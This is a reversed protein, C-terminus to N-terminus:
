IKRKSENILVSANLVEMRGASDNHIVLTFWNQRRNMLGKMGDHRQTKMQDPDYSRAPYSYTDGEPLVVDVVLPSSSKGAVYVVEPSKIQLTDFGQSGCDVLALIPLREDDEGELLRLGTTDIGYEDGFIRATSNFYWNSYRSTAGNSLNMVVTSADGDYRVRVTTFDEAVEKNYAASSDLSCVLHILGDRVRVWTSGTAARPPIFNRDQQPLKVSGDARGIVFGNDGMWGVADENPHRFGTGKIGGYPLVERPSATKIDTGAYFYTRDAVVFVGDQIPLMLTVPAGVDIYNEEAFTQGFDHVKSYSIIQGKASLLRGNFFAIIDGAPLASLFERDGLLRGTPADAISVSGTAAAVTSYRQLVSGNTETCYITFYTTGPRATPLTVTLSGAAALDYAYVASAGSEEGDAMQHTIAVRYAGAPLTGAGAIVLPIALPTPVAWPSDTNDANCRGSATGNSWWVEGDQEAYSIPDTSLGTRLTTMVLPSVATIVGLSGGQCLLTKAGQTSLSHGSDIALTHSYGARRKAQGDDGFDVNLADSCAAGPSERTSKPLQHSGVSNNIGKSWPGLQVSKSM